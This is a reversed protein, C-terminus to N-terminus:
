EETFTVLLAKQPVVDGASAHLAGVTADAAAYLTHEMKMAELVILPAGSQVQPCLYPHPVDTFCATALLSV